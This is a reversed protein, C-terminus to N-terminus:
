HGLQAEWEKNLKRPSPSSSAVRCGGIKGGWEIWNRKWNNMAHPWSKMPSRGVKWDKASFYDFFKDAELEPLGIRLGYARVDAIPPPVKGLHTVGAGV